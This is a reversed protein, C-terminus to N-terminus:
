AAAASGAHAASEAAPWLDRAISGFSVIRGVIPSVDRDVELAWGERRAEAM